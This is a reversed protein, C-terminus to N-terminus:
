LSFLKDFEDDAYIALYENFSSYIKPVGYASDVNHEVGHEVNEKYVHVLQGFCNCVKRELINQFEQRGYTYLQEHRYFGSTWIFNIEPSFSNSIRTWLKKTHSTSVKLVVREGQLFTCRTINIKWFNHVM